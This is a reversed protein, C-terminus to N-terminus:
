RFIFSSMLSELFASLYDSVLFFLAHM